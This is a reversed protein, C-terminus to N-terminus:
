STEGDVYRQTIALVSEVSDDKDNFESWYVIEGRELSDDIISIRFDYRGEALQGTHTSVSFNYRPSAKISWGLTDCNEDLMGGSIESSWEFTDEGFRRRLADFFMSVSANGPVVMDASTPSNERNAQSGSEEDQKNKGTCFYVRVSSAFFLIGAFAFYVAGVVPLVLAGTGIPLLTIGSAISSNGRKRLCTRVQPKPLVWTSQNM